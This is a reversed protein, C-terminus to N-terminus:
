LEEANQLCNVHDKEGRFEELESRTFFLLASEYMKKGDVTALRIDVEGGDEDSSLQKVEKICAGFIGYIGELQFSQGFLNYQKTEIFEFYIEENKNIREENIKLKGKGTVNKFIKYIKVPQKEILCRYLTEVL